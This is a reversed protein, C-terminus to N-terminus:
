TEVPFDGQAASPQRRMETFEAMIEEFRDLARDLDERAIILPPLFRVVM